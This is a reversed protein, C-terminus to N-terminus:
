GGLFMQEIEPDAALEPGTGETRKRGAVLVYGRDAIELARRANQEVMLVPTGEANIRRVTEFVQAQLNPALGATPEDLLLIKPEPMLAKGIAVMQRQGGSLTGAPQRRKGRLDPFMQYIKEIRAALGDRLVYGGMELNEEVALSPFVNAVQPVYCIGRRVIESTRLPAIDEGELHITGASLRLLGFISRITTSKGSGNPGIIAVIEGPGVRLDIGHIIDADGYGGSVGELELVPTM